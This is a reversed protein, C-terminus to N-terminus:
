RVSEPMGAAYGAISSCDIKLEKGIYHYRNAPNEKFLSDNQVNKIKLKGEEALFVTGGEAGTFRRAEKLIKDLLIDIDNIKHIESSLRFIKDLIAKSTKSVDATKEKKVAM